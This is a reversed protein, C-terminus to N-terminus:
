VGSRHAGSPGPVRGRRRESGPAARM